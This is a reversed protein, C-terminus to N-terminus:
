DDDVIIIARTGTNTDRGDNGRVYDPTIPGFGLIFSEIPEVAADDLLEVTVWKLTEGPAFVVTGAAGVYDVGAVATGDITQWPVSIPVSWPKGLQFPIQVPGAREGTFTDGIMLLPPSTYRKRRAM